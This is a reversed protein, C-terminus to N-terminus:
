LMKIRLRTPGDANVVLLDHAHGISPLEDRRM